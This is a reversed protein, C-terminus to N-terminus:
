TKVKPFDIGSVGQQSRPPPQPLAMVETQGFQGLATTETRTSAQAIEPSAAGSADDGGEDALVFPSLFFGIVFIFTFASVRFFHTMSWRKIKSIGNSHASLM